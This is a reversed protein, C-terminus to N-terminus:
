YLRDGEVTCRRLTRTEGVAWDTRAHLCSLNDWMLLDGPRWVHEYINAPDETLDFLWELLAESEDRAVGEIWMTNQRSVYLARRGSGPNTVIIPQRCHHITALDVDLRIRRGVGYEHGQMVMAGALRRKLDAPLNDYAAYLSAFKTHGGERPIEIGYLFSARHPRERYCKDTHFWMEGHGLAGLPAGDADMRDTIMMMDGWDPSKVQKGAPPKVREAIPGFHAAFRRQDAESLHQNRFLLVTHAHWAEKIQRVTDEDLPRSLDVGSIQAGIVPHLRTVAIEELTLASASTAM